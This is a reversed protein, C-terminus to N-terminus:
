MILSMSTSRININSLITSSVSLLNITPTSYLLNANLFGWNTSSDANGFSNKPPLTLPSTNPRRPLLRQVPNNGRSGPLLATILKLHCVTALNETKWIWPTTQMATCQSAIFTLMLVLLFELNKQAKSTVSFKKLTTCHSKTPQHAFRAVNSIAFAIDPRTGLVPFATSGLLARFLFTTDPAIGPQKDHDMYLSLRATPDAPVQVPHIDTYGFKALLREVYRTQDLFISHLARNRTIRLGVFTDPEDVRVQFVDNMEHLIPDTHAHNSSAILGDDVFIALLILPATTSKYVCPDQHTAVLNHAVLFSTFRQNWVRSAQRLGYISKRLRCVYQPHAVDKFYPLQMM